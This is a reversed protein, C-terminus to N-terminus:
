ALEGSLRATRQKHGERSVRSAGWRCVQPRLIFDLQLLTQIGEDDEIPEGNHRLLALGLEDLVQQLFEVGDAV